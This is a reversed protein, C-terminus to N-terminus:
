HTPSQIFRKCTFNAIYLMLNLIITATYEDDIGKDVPVFAIFYNIWRVRSM